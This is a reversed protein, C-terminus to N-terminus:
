FEKIKTVVRAMDEIGYRQDCPISLIRSYIWATTQREALDIWRPVKWHVPCYIQEERLYNRLQERESKVFVPFFLPCIDSDPTEFVSVFEQRDKLEETLFRYNERRKQILEQWDIGCLIQKSMEDMGVPAIERDLCEEALAFLQLYRIKLEPEQHRIYSQKLALAEKRLEAFEYNQEVRNSLRCNQSALMGGSPLGMWKRLSAIYYDNECFRGYTSFLTHTVDEVIVTGTQKLERLLQQIGNDSHFGFYGLHLFIGIPEQRVCSAIGPSLDKELEYFLCRYGQNVFPAIVSECIYAPLLVTKCIPNMEQLLLQIASRGSATFVATGYQQFMDPEKAVKCAVETDNLWFESGIEM